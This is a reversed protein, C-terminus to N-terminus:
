HGDAVFGSRRNKVRLGAAAVDEKRCLTHLFVLRSLSVMVGRNSPSATVIPAGATLSGGFFSGGEMTPSHTGCDATMAPLFSGRGAPAVKSNVLSPLAMM